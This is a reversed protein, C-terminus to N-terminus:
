RRSPSLSRARTRTRAGTGALMGERRPRIELTNGKVEVVLKEIMRESGEAVVSPKAGTRITVDFPGAVEVQDFPGVEYNRQVMPGGEEARSQGCAAVAAAAAVAGITLAARM